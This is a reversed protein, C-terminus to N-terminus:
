FVWGILLEMPNLILSQNKLGNYWGLLIMNSGFFGKAFLFLTM